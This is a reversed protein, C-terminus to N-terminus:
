SCEICCPPEWAPRLSEAATLEKLADSVRSTNAYAVARAFHAEPLNLYPQTVEETFRAAAARDTNKKDWLLHMQMM